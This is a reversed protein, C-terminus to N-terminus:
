DRNSYWLGVRGGSLGWRTFVYTELKKGLIIFDGASSQEIYDGLDARGGYRTFRERIVGTFYEAVRNLPQQLTYAMCENEMLFRDSRDYGLSDVVSFYTELFDVARRDMATYFLHMAQRFSEDTFYLGHFGEHAMFLYRLYPVSQRSFSLVAGTGPLYGDDGAVIIGNEVLIDRLEVEHSNLSFGERLALDFFAALSEARYDHANYGHLHAIDRDNMLQGTYGAKEVFFALRKFYRSQVAYDATDFILISPFRDWSFIEREPNRWADQPWTIIAHPDLPIPTNDGESLTSFPRVRIGLLHETGAGPIILAPLEEIQEAYVSSVHADPSARWGFSLSGASFVSRRPNKPTGTQDGCASFAFEARENRDLLIPAKEFCFRKGGERGFGAWYASDRVDWGTENRVLSISAIEAYPADDGEETGRSASPLAEIAFGTFQGSNGPSIMQMRITVVDSVATVLANPRSQPNSVLRGHKTLDESFVPALMVDVPVSTRVTVEIADLSPDRSLVESLVEPEFSFWATTSVSSIHGREAAPSLAKLKLRTNDGHADGFGAEGVPVSCSLTSIESCGALLYSGALMVCVLVVVPVSTQGKNTM